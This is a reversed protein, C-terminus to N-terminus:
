NSRGECPRVLVSRTFRGNANGDIRADLQDANDKAQGAVGLIALSSGGSVDTIDVLMEARKAVMRDDLQSTLKAPGAPYRVVGTHAHGHMHGVRGLQLLLYRKVGMRRCQISSPLHVFGALEELLGPLKDLVSGKVFKNILVLRHVPQCLRSHLLHQVLLRVQIPEILEEAPSRLRAKRYDQSRDIATLAVSRSAAAAVALLLQIADQAHPLRVVFPHRHEITAHEARDDVLEAMRVGVRDDILVFRLQAVRALLDKRM